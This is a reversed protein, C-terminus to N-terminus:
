SNTLDYVIRWQRGRPLQAQIDPWIKHVGRVVESSQRRSRGARGIYGGAQRRFRGRIRLRRRRAHRQRCGASWWRATARSSSWTASSTPPIALGTSATLNVQVMQEKPIAIRFHLRQRCAGPQRRDGDAWLGRAKASRALRAACIGKARAARRNARRARDAAEAARRAYPLRHDPEAGAFRQQLRSVDRRHNARDQRHAGAAAHRDAVPQSWGFNIKTNIETWRKHETDYNLRLYDHDTSNSSQSTSSM